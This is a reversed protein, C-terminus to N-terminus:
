ESEKLRNDKVIIKEDASAATITPAIGDEFYCRNSKEFVGDRIEFTMISKDFEDTNINLLEKLKFWIDADPIAFCDDKRFWHEVLTIPKNLKESIQKNSLKSQKKNDRLVLKLREIDVEHKRIKVQQPIDVKIIENPVVYLYSYGGANGVPEANLCM